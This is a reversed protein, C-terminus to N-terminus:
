RSAPPVALDWGHVLIENAYKWVAADGPVVVGPPVTVQAALAADTWAERVGALRARLAAALEDDPVDSQTM